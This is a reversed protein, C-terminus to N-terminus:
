DFIVLTLLNSDWMVFKVRAIKIQYLHVYVLQVHIWKRRANMATNLNSAMNGDETRKLNKFIRDM